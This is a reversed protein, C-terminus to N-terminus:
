FSEPFSLEIQWSVGPIGWPIEIEGTELLQTLDEVSLTAVADHSVAYMVITNLTCAGMYNKPVACYHSDIWVGDRVKTINCTYFEEKRDTHTNVMEDVFAQNCAWHEPPVFEFNPM